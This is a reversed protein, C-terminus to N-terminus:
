KAASSQQWVAFDAYQVPLEPLPSPKKERFSEYLPALENAFQWISWGDNAIHHTNLLLVHDHEALKLLSARILPGTQLDFVHRGSEIALQRVAAEQLDAAVHSLDAVPLDIRLEPSIVQVPTDGELRYTTRLVEHRRIIENLANKLADADLSGTLRLAMPINYYPSGPDLQNLFWLRQQASSLPLSRDRPVRRVPPLAHADVQLHEVKLAQEAITPSEFMARLPLEVQAWRRVRSVVQTALLSHGGLGFFSDHIGVEPVRLVEAWIEALKAEVANRPGVFAGVEDRALEPAPLASRNIKGNPSLPLMDLVIFASPMMFEPLKESVRAKLAAVLHSNDSDVAVPVIYAVLRKDDPVDERAMVVSQRVDPHSNLAAEVEGLEIRFGRLKVQHDIRGLYEIEGNARYKCLDGTRYMRAGVERSFRNSVFREATLDPRGYYGRALGEGALFLEGPVGVPVPNGHADLIYAQSGVLPRGISVSADRPVLTYTSYTTDETPGYLNYVREVKTNKYIQEVLSESLAEGALNVTKVTEPVGDMRLLEAMASPVTNILTVNNKALLTPLYLANDALVVCGGTSLPAFMEFVSLDFCMSTSFLVGSLEQPDFAQTAWHVFTAVSRHEIAVGKPHGTSGSTFLVYALNEPKTETAPNSISSDSIIPWDVDICIRKAGCDNLDNAVKSHTVILPAKAVELIYRIRERPYHPDLPVYAGGSKLVGLIGVLMDATRDIYIGILVEPGAGNAILHHALQNARANLERYSLQEDGAVLAVADPTIEAQRAVFDHLLDGQQFDVEARNFDALSRQEEDTLLPLQSICQEPNALVGRLLQIYHGLMREITVGDFLDTDYEVRLLMGDATPFAFWSMDLISTSQHISSREVSLGSAEFYRRPMNQLGFLVQFIPNYSLSRQPQLEEVLKEFPLEQHAYADLAVQKVRALLERFTPNGSLDARLALTNVFFGIVPEIETYNRGAITSGVVIDDQGSYRSMLVDFAALLAMFLTAGESQSLFTLREILDNPIVHTRVDGRHSQIAPRPRDAPLELVAPAAALASRWYEVQRDRLDGDLWQRQWATFDAYQIALEPLPSPLDHAFPEYLAALEGAILSGSWGDGVIHHVVILLAHDDEEIRLLQSRVLPGKALDFPTSAERRALRVLEEEKAQGDTDLVPQPTLPITVTPSVVAVPRGEVNHFTTRLSEHRCVIENVTRELAPVNLKGRLRYMASINYAPSGPGLQDIFWLRQQAYSLPLQNERPIRAIPPVVVGARSRREVEIREAFKIITPADFMARLPLEVGLTQRVRAIVQAAMLSHGGLAFFNDHIGPREVRLLSAWAEALFEEVPSRPPAYTGSVYTRQLKSSEIARSIADISAFKNVIRPVFETPSELSSHLLRASSSHKDFAWFHCLYKPISESEVPLEAVVVAPCNARVDAADVGDGTVFVFRDLSLGLELALETLGDSKAGVGFRSAAIHQMGLKMGSVNEFRASVDAEAEASLLCLIMGADEQAIMFQQLAAHSADVELGAPERGFPINAWLASDGDLVIVEHATRRAAYILRAIMTALAVFMAPQYPIHSIQYSYEDAYDDVRYLCLLEASGVVQVGAIEGAEAVLKAEAQEIAWVLGPQTKASESPPSVLVLLPVFIRQAAARLATLLENVNADLGAAGGAEKESSASHLDELRLLVVNAGYQNKALLSSPDLLEQFVQNFPAFEVKPPMGFQKLWFELPERIPEATYTASIAVSQTRAIASAEAQRILMAPLKFEALPKAPNEVMAAMVDAYAQLLGDVTEPAFLASKYECSLRLGGQKEIAIFRLDLLSVEPDFNLYEAEFNRGRLEIEPFNEMVLGVNFLPNDDSTRVPNVAEVIRAFPCDQHAFAEMVANKERILLDHASDEAHIPNHLPLPNVFPGPMHECGSRSRNSATTGLLFDYQDSWRALLLRLAAAMVTFQTTGYAQALSQVRGLLDSSLVQSRLNGRRDPETGPAFDTPLSLVTAGGGLLARWYDMEGELRQGQMWKREWVAYDTYHLTPSPLPNTGGAAFADYVAGLEDLLLSGTFGDNVVHHEAICLMFDDDSFRILRARQVEGAALNLPERVTQQALRTAEAERKELDMASLDTVTFALNGGDEVIQVPGNVGAVFRVRLIEHRMRLANLSRKMVESDVNGHIRFIRPKNYIGGGPNQQELLWFVLQSHSLPFESREVVRVIPPTSGAAKLEDLVVALHVITPEEFFAILPLDVQIEESVRQIVEMVKLSDGGIDFFSASNEVQAVHLVDRWIKALMDANSGGGVGALTEALHAITPEEFFAILPLDVDLEESVRQIVEMAKLSDGGVAFFNANPEVSPLRLVESWIKALATEIGNKGNVMSGPGRTDTNASNKAM